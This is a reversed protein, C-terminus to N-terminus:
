GRENRKREIERVYEGFSQTKFWEQEQLERIFAMKFSRSAMKNFEQAMAAGDVKLRADMAAFDAQARTNIFGQRLYMARNRACVFRTSKAM